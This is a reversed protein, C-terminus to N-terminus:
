APEIGDVGSGEDKTGTGDGARPVSVGAALLAGENCAPGGVGTGVGVTGAGGEEASSGVPSVNRLDVSKTRGDGVDVRSGDGGGVIDGVGVSVGFGVGTGVEVVAGVGVAIGVRVGILVGVLVGVALGVRVGARATGTALGAGGASDSSTTERVEGMVRPLSAVSSAPVRGPALHVRRTVRGLPVTLM